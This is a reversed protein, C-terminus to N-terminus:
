VGKMMEKLRESDLSAFCTPCKGLKALYRSYECKAQELQKYIEDYNNQSEVFDQLIEKSDESAEKKRIVDELKSFNSVASMKKLRQVTEECDIYEQILEVSEMVGEIKENFAKVSNLDVEIDKIPMLRVVEKRCQRITDIHGSLTSMSSTVNEIKKEIKLFRNIKKEIDPLSEFLDLKKEIVIVDAELIKVEKNKSNIMTTLESTWTDVSEAKTIRNITKAINGATASILFPKELQEQFNLEGFNLDSTIDDPVSAGFKKYSKENIKYEADVVEKIGDKVKIHKRLSIANGNELEAIIELDGEKGAFNSFYKGGGPRNFTLLELARKISTKGITSPNTPDEPVIVNVGDSFELHTNKHSQFNKITLTKIM